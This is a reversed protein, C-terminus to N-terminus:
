FIGVNKYGVETFNKEAHGQFVLQLVLANGLNDSTQFPVKLM